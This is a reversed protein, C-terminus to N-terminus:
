SMEAHVASFVSMIIAPFYITNSPANFSSPAEAELLGM